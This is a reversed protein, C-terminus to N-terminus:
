TPLPTLLRSGPHPYEREQQVHAMETRAKWHPTFRRLIMQRHFEIVAKMEGVAGVNMSAFGPQFSKGRELTERQAHAVAHTRVLRIRNPQAQAMGGCNLQAFARRQEFELAPEPLIMAVDKRD